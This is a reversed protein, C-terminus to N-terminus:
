VPAASRQNLYRYAAVAATAGDGASAALLRVSQARMDGAAFIGDVSTRMLLDTIIHGSDDLAVIDRVFATNPELGVHVFIGGAPDVRETGLSLDRLRVGEVGADGLIEVVATNALLQIAPHAQAREVLVAQASPREARHVITISTAFATLTLAADFAADGGGVVYVARGRFFPGDCSACHSVGRGYLREEGDIGLSRLTSGVAIIVCPASLTENAGHVIRQEGALELREVDDLMVEVGAAEAQEFLVPGLEHGAIGAPLGPLNEVQAATSIQGGPGARDIVVARLGFRAAMTASTLGAIGAGIVIVDISEMM